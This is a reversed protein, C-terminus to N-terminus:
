SMIYINLNEKRAKKIYDYDIAKLINHTLKSMKKIPENDFSENNAVAKQYFDPPSCEYRGLVFQMRSYSKDRKLENFIASAQQNDCKQNLSLYAGDAVGFYKRCNYITDINEFVRGFFGQTNDLIFNRYKEKWFPIHSDMQGYYNVFYFAEHRGIEKDFIPQFDESIPYEECKVGEKECSEKVTNCLFKPVYIKEYRRLTVLFLLCNRGCNLALAGQHYEKGRFNELEFYGGIEKM